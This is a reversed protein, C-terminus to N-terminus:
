EGMHAVVLKCLEKFRVIEIDSNLHNIDKHVWQINGEIYGKQNDIRDIAATQKTKEKASPALCLLLGTLACRREQQLFLNWVYEITIEFTIRRRAAGLRVNNFYEGRLEGHGKWRWSRSGQQACARCAKSRGRKMISAGVLYEKGCRCRCLWRAGGSPFDAGKAIVFWDNIQHGTLDMRQM